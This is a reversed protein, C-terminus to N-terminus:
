QSRTIISPSPYSYNNRVYNAIAITDTTRRVASSNKLMVFIGTYGNQLKIHTMINYGWGVYTGTKGGLCWYNSKVEPFSTTIVFQRANAGTVSITYESASWVDKLMANKSAAVGLKALDLVSSVQERDKLGTPNKFVSGSMGLEAAKINMAAVFDSNTHASVVRAVAVAATNSSPLMMDYLADELTIVDGEQLNYGSGVTLDSALITIPTTLPIGSDLAVLASLTKTISAPYLLTRLREYYLPNSYDPTGASDIPIIGYATADVSPAQTSTETKMFENLISLVTTPLSNNLVNNIKTNINNANIEPMTQYLLPDIVHQYSPSSTSTMLYVKEVLLDPNLAIDYSVGSGDSATLTFYNVGLSPDPKYKTTDVTSIDIHNSGTAYSSKLIKVMVWSNNTGSLDANPKYNFYRFAYYYDPDANRVKISLISKELESAVPSYPVGRDRYVFPYLKSKNIQQADVEKFAADIATDTHNKQRENVDWTVKKFVGGSKIYLGNNADTDNTVFAYRGNGLSSSNMLTKNQFPTAPFGGNEFLEKIAKKASPYTEGTRTVVQTNEDGNALEGLSAADLSADKLQAITIADAM